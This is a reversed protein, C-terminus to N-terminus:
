ATPLTWTPPVILFSVDAGTEQVVAQHPISILSCNNFASPLCKRLRAVGMKSTQRHFHKSSYMAVYDTGGDGLTDTTLSYHCRWLMVESALCFGLTRM